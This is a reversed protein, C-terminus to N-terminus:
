KLYYKDYTDWLPERVYTYEINYTLLNSKIQNCVDDINDSELIYFVVERYYKSNISLVHVGILNCLVENIVNEEAYETSGVNHDYLSADEYQKNLSINFTLKIPIDFHRLEDNASLNISYLVLIGDIEKENLAWTHGINNNHM